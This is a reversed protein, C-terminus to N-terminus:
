IIERSNRGQFEPFPAHPEAQYWYAVSSVDDTLPLYRGEGRWGLCQMQVKLDKKFYVPDQIHFRYLIFRSGARMNGATYGPTIEPRVDVYGLYPASYSRSEGDKVFGWAGGFYDETGTGIITPHNKDGDLFMLIEGEGWWGSNNQQWAMFTGTYQGQGEVGDLITYYEAYPMPNVRRWRAHFYLADGSVHELTYNIAYFLSFDEQSQNEVTIRAHKRFPMPFYSNLGGTPNVNIPLATINQTQNWSNCFFDGIPCEVSPEGEMDWYIRIIVNRFQKAALTFWMHRIIGPGGIDMITYQSNGKFELCPSLKWMPGLERACKAGPPYLSTEADAMGGAGKAGTPNEATISRSEADSKMFINNLDFPM